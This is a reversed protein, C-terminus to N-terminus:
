IGPNQIAGIGSLSPEENLKSKLTFVRWNRVRMQMGQGFLRNAALSAGDVFTDPTDYTTGTFDSMTRPNVFQSATGIQVLPTDSTTLGSSVYTPLNPNHMDLLTFLGFGFNLQNPSVIEGPGGHDLIRYKRDLALGIREVRFKEIGDVLWRVYGKSKNYAIAVKVFDDLPDANPNGNGSNSKRKGIPIAHSFAHYTNTTPDPATFWTPIGFPLREYFAYLTDNSFFVDFVMFTEFDICNMAGGCLRIDDQANTVDGNLAAPVIPSASFTQKAAIEVEYVLESGDNPATFQKNRYVLYKVHDLGGGVGQPVTLTYPTPTPNIQLENNSLAVAGDNGVFGGSSFFYWDQNNGVNFTNFNDFDLTQITQPATIEGSVNIDEFREDKRVGFNTNM